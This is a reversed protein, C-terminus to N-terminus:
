GVETERDDPIVRNNEHSTRATSQGLLRTDHELYAKHHVIRVQHFGKPRTQLEAAKRVPVVM